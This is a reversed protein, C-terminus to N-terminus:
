LLYGKPPYFDIDVDRRPLDLWRGVTEQVAERTVRFWPDNCVSITILGRSHYDNETAVM